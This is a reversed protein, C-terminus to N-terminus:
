LIPVGHTHPRNRVSYPRAAASQQPHRRPAEVVHRIRIKCRQDNKAFGYRRHVTFPRGRLDAQEPARQQWGGDQLACPGTSRLRTSRGSSAGPAASTVGAPGAALWRRRPPSPPPHRRVLAQLQRATIAEFSTNHGPQCPVEDWVRAGAPPDGAAKQSATGRTLDHASSATGGKKLT